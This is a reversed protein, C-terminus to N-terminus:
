SAARVRAKKPRANVARTTNWLRRVSVASGFARKWLMRSAQVVPAVPAAAKTITLGSDAATDSCSEMTGSM